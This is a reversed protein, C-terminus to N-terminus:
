EVHSWTKRNAIKWIANQNVGYDRAISRQTDGDTLRRRIERVQAETLVSNPQEEGRLMGKDSAPLDDAHKWTKRHLIQWIANFSVGYEAALQTMLIGGAAHNERISRVQGASLRASHHLAGKPFNDNNHRGKHFMDQANDLRTGLFLHNPNCCRRVDCEHCVCLSKVFPGIELHYALRHTLVGSACGDERRLKYHFIGYGSGSGGAKWPWCEDPDGCDVLSWFREVEEDSLQFHTTLDDHM